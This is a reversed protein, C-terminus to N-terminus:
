PAPLVQQATTRSMSFGRLEMLVVSVFQNSQAPTERFNCGGDYGGTVVGFSYGNGTFTFGGRKVTYVAWQAGNDCGTPSGGQLVYADTVLAYGKGSDCPSTLVTASHIQSDYVALNVSTGNITGQITLLSGSELQQSFATAATLLVLVACQITQRVLKM